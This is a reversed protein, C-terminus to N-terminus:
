GCLTSALKMQPSQRLVLAPRLSVLHPAQQTVYSVFSARNDPSQLECELQITRVRGLNDKGRSTLRAPSQPTVCVDLIVHQSFARVQAAFDDLSRTRFLLPNGRNILRPVDVTVGTLAPSPASVDAASERVTDAMDRVIGEGLQSLDDGLDDFRKEVNKKRKSPQHGAKLGAKARERAETPYALTIPDSVPSPEAPADSLSGETDEHEHYQYTRRHSTPGPRKPGCQSHHLNTDPRLEARGLGPPERLPLNPEIALFNLRSSLARYVHEAHDVRSRTRARGTLHEQPRRSAPCKRRTETPSQTTHLHVAEPHRETPAGCASHQSEFALRDSLLEQLEIQRWVQGRHGSIVAQCGSETASRLWLALEVIVAQWKHPPLSERGTPLACWVCAYEKNRVRKSVAHM